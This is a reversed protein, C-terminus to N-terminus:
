ENKAKNPTLELKERLEILRLKESEQYAREDASVIHFNLIYLYDLYKKEDSECLALKLVNFFEAKEEDNLYPIANKLPSLNSNLRQKRKFLDARFREKIITANIDDVTNKTALLHEMATTIASPPREAREAKIKEIEAKIEEDDFNLEKAKQALTLRKNRYHADLVRFKDNNNAHQHPSAQQMFDLEAPEDDFLHENSDVGTALWVPDCGLYEAAKKANDMDIVLTKGSFWQNVSPPTVGCAEAMAKQTIGNTRLQARTFAIRIREKLTSM